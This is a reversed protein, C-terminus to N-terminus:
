ANIWLLQCSLLILMAATSCPSYVAAHSTGLIGEPEDSMTEPQAPSESTYTPLLTQITPELTPQISPERTRGLTQLTPSPTGPTLSPFSTLSEPPTSPPSTTPNSTPNLTEAPIPGNTPSGSPTPIAIGQGESPDVTIGQADSADIEITELEGFNGTVRGALVRDVYINVRGDVFGDGGRDQIALIYRQDRPVCLDVLVSETEFIIAAVAHDVLSDFYIEEGDFSALLIRNETTYSADLEIYVELEMDNVDECVTVEDRFLLWHRYMREIQGCTFRGEQAQCIEDDVYNMFNHIDDSGPLDPCTDPPDEGNM